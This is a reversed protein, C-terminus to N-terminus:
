CCHTLYCVWCSVEDKTPLCDPIAMFEFGAPCPTLLEIGYVLRALSLVAEIDLMNRATTRHEGTSNVQSSDMFTDNDQNM